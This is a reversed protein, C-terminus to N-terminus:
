VVDEAEQQEPEKYVSQDIEILLDKIDTLEKEARVLHSRMSSLLYAIYLLVFLLILAM